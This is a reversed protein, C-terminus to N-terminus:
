ADQETRFKMYNSEFSSRLSLTLIAGRFSNNESINFIISRVTLTSRLTVANTLIRQFLEELIMTIWICKQCSLLISERSYPPHHTVSFFLGILRRLQCLMELRGLSKCGRFCLDGIMEFSSHIGQDASFHLLEIVQVDGIRLRFGGFISLTKGLNLIIGRVFFRFITTIPQRVPQQM